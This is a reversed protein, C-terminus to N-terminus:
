SARTALFRELEAALEDGSPLELADDLSTVVDITAATPTTSARSSARGDGPARRQVGVLEDLRERQLVVERRLVAGGARQHRDGTSATSCPWPRRRTPCRRWTTRCRRGCGSPRCATATSRRSSRPRWAPRCTSRASRCPLATSCRPRRRRPRCARVARTHPTAFPYAGLASWRPSVSSSPWRASRNRRLPALRRGARSRHAAARRARRHRARAAIAAVVVGAPTSATASSWRRGVPATTSTCTTTSTSSPARM